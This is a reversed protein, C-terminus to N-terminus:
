QLIANVESAPVYKEGIEAEYLKKMNEMLDRKRESSIKGDEKYEFVIQIVESIIPYVMMYTKLDAANIKDLAKIIYQKRYEDKDTERIGNELLWLKIGSDIKDQEEQDAAHVGKAAMYELVYNIM